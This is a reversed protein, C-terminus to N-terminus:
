KTNEFFRVFERCIDTIKEIIPQRISFAGFYLDEGYKEKETQIISLYQNIEEENYDIGSSIEYSNYLTTIAQNCRDQVDDIRTQMQFFLVSILLIIFVLILIFLRLIIKRTFWKFKRKKVQLFIILIFCCLLDFRLFAEISIEFLNKVSHYDKTLEQIISYLEGSSNVEPYFKWILAISYENLSAYILRQPFFSVLPQFLQLLIQNFGYFFLVIIFIVVLPKISNFGIKQSLFKSFSPKLSLSRPIYIGKELIYQNTNNNIIKRMMHERYPKGLAWLFLIISISGLFIPPFINSWFDSVENVIQIEM